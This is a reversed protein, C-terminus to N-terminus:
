RDVREPRTILQSTVGGKLAITVSVMHTDIPLLFFVAYKKLILVRSDHTSLSKPQCAREARTFQIWFQVHPKHSVRIRSGSRVQNMRVPEHNEPSFIVIIMSGEFICSYLIAISAPRDRRPALQGSSIISRHPHRSFFASNYDFKRLFFAVYMLSAMLTHCAIFIAIYFYMHSFNTPSPSV